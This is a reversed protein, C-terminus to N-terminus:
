DNELISDEFLKLDKYKELVEEDKDLISTDDLLIETDLWDEEYIDELIEEDLRM